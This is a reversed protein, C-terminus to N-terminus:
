EKTSQGDTDMTSVTPENDPAKTTFGQGESFEVETWAGDEAPVSDWKIIEGPKITVPVHPYMTESAGRFEWYRTGAADTTVEATLHTAHQLEPAPEDAAREPEPATM